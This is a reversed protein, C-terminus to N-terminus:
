RHLDSSLNASLVHGLASTPMHRPNWACRDLEEDHGGGEESGM